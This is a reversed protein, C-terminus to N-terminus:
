LNFFHPLQNRRVDHHHITPGQLLLSSALAFVSVSVSVFVFVSVSVSVSASV